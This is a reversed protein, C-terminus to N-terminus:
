PGITRELERDRLWADVWKLTALLSFYLFGFAIFRHPSEWANISGLLQVPADAVGFRPVPVMATIVILTMYLIASLAWLSTIRAQEEAPVDSRRWLTAAKGLCLWGFAVAPWWAQFMHIFLGIFGAYVTAFVVFPAARRVGSAVREEALNGLIGTAHILMFEVLMILIGSRVADEGLVRPSIWTVLFAVATMGDPAVAVVRFGRRWSRGRWWTGM